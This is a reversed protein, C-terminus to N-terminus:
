MGKGSLLQALLTHLATDNCLAGHGTASTVTTFPLDGPVKRWNASRITGDGPRTVAAPLDARLQGSGMPQQNISGGASLGCDQEYAWARQTAHADSGYVVIKLQEYDARPRALFRSAGGDDATSTGAEARDAAGTGRVFHKLRFRQGAALANRLHTVEDDDLLAGMPAKPNAAARHAYLGLKHLQWQTHDYLDFEVAAGAADLAGTHGGGSRGEADADADTSEREPESVLFFGYLSAFTFSTEASLLRAPGKKWGRSLDKLTTTGGGLAGGVSVWAAFWDPHRSVSPWALLSGTSHTLLVVQRREPGRGLELAALFAALRAESEELARRWDWCFSRADVGAARQAAMWRLLGGYGMELPGAPVLEDTSQHGAVRGGSNDWATPLALSAHGKNCDCCAGLVTRLSLWARSRSLAGDDRRRALNCGYLGHVFILVPAHRLEAEAATVARQEM